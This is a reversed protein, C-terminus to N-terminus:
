RTKADNKREVNKEIYRKKEALCLWLMYKTNGVRIRESITLM